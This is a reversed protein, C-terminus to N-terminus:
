PHAPKMSVHRQLRLKLGPEACLVTAAVGAHKCYHRPLVGALVLHAELKSSCFLRM